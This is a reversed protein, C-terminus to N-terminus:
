YWLDSTDPFIQQPYLFPERNSPTLTSDLTFYWTENIGVWKVAMRQGGSLFYPCYVM